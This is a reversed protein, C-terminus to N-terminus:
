QLPSTEAPVPVQELIESLITQPAKQSASSVMLRHAITSALLPKIDEPTVFDRGLVAAHSQAIRQLDLTSRPSMGIAIDPHERTANAITVIYKRISDAVHIESTTKIARLLDESGVVPQLNVIANTIQHTSLMEAEASSDPYGIKIVLLFRDLQSEPLPYTGYAEMPNQTAVVMFPDSITHTTRDITVQREAMAELLASQTRPSARNIEDTLVINAFIPGPHFEFEDKSPKWIPVGMIDSPLLDPTFQIRAFEVNISRALSKSILTKGVGPKDEILIHGGSLLGLLVQSIVNRKGKIVKEMNDIVSSFFEQVLNM